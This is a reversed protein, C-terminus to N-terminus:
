MSSNHSILYSIFVYLCMLGHEYKGIEVNEKEAVSLSRGGKTGTTGKTGTM